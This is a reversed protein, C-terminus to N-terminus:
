SAGEQARIRRRHVRVAPNGTYIGRAEADSLLVSGLTVVAERGVRVGPGVRVFAAVWAGDEVVIPQVVRRMGPDAWDHNGTCLYAGQSLCVHAGIDTLVFNDIWVREGIWSHDGIRLHWPYKIHVNPKIVVGPGVSAGFRRLLARKLGYSLVLPNLFVCAQVLMWLGQVLASRGVEYDGTTTRRLDVRVEDGPTMPVLM